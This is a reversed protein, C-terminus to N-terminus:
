PTAPPLHEQWASPDALSLGCACDLAEEPAGIPLGSPLVSDQYGARSAVAGTRM